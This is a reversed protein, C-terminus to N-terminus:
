GAVGVVGTKCYLSSSSTPIGLIFPDNQDKGQHRSPGPIGGETSRHDGKKLWPKVEKICFFLTESKIMM